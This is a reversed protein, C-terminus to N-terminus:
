QRPKLILRVDGPIPSPLDEKTVIEAIVLELRNGLIRFTGRHRVGLLTNRPDNDYEFVITGREGGGGDSRVEWFVQVKKDRLFVAHAERVRCTGKWGRVLVWKSGPPFELKAPHHMGHDGVDLFLLFTFAPVLHLQM